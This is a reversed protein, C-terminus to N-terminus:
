PAPRRCTTVTAASNATSTATDISTAAETDELLLRWEREVLPAVRDASYRERVRERGADALKAITDPEQLLRHLGDALADVDGPAVLVGCGEVLEAVQGVPTTVVACGHAMAELLFMPLAEQRSPLAAVAARSQWRLVEDRPVPGLVIIADTSAIPDWDRPAGAIVLRWGPHHECIRNWAEVLVDVGKRPGAEGAFLVFPEKEGVQEPVAVGNVVKVVNHAAAPGLIARVIVETEETLVFVRHVLRLVAHILRPRMESFEAFDSGHLHVAVRFGLLRAVAALGGERVFSGGSSLHFVFAHTSRSFRCGVMVLICRLSRLVVSRDGRGRTSAMARVRVVTYNWSLYENLVQAMGGPLDGFVGVHVVTPRRRRGGAEARTPV